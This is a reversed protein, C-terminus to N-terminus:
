KLTVYLLQGDEDYKVNQYIGEPDIVKGEQDLTVRMTVVPCENSFGQHYQCSVDHCDHCPDEAFYTKGGGCSFLCIARKEFM